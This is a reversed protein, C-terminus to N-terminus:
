ALPRLLASLQRFNLTWAVITFNEERGVRCILSLFVCLLQVFVVFQFAILMALHLPLPLSLPCDFTLTCSRKRNGPANIIWVIYVCFMCVVSWVWWLCVSVGLVGAEGRGGGRLLLLLYLPQDFLYLNVCRYLKLAYRMIFFDNMMMMMRMSHASLSSTTQRHRKDAAPFAIGIDHTYTHTHTHPWSAVKKYCTEEECNSLKGEM